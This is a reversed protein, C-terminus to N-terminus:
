RKGTKGLHLSHESGAYILFIAPRKNFNMRTAADAQMNKWERCTRTISTSHGPSTLDCSVSVLTPGELHQLLFDMMKENRYPTEIFIETMDNRRSDRELKRLSEARASDDIPLYGQFSFGQGNFGSAMLALLISSPGVLPEM